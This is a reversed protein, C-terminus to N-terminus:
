RNVHLLLEGYDASATACAYAKVVHMHKYTLTACAVGSITFQSCKLMYLCHSVTIFQLQGAGEPLICQVTGQPFICTNTNTTDPYVMDYKTIICKSGGISISATPLCLISILVICQLKHTLWADIILHLCFLVQLTIICHQQAAVVLKLCRLVHVV